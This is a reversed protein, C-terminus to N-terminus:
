VSSAGDSVIRSMVIGAQLLFLTVHIIAVPTGLRCELILTISHWRTHSGITDGSPRLQVRMHSISISHVFVRSTIDMCVCHNAYSTSECVNGHRCYQWFLSTVAQGVSCVFRAVLEDGLGAAVRGHGLLPAIEQRAGCDSARATDVVDCTATTATTATTYFQPRAKPSHQAIHSSTPFSPCLKECSSAPCNKISVSYHVNM